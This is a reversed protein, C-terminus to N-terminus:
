DLRFRASLDTRHYAPTTGNRSERAALKHLPTQKLVPGLKFGIGQTLGSIDNFALNNAFLM